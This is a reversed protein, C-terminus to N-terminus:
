RAFGLTYHSGAASRGHRPRGPAARPPWPHAPSSRESRGWCLLFSCCLRPELSCSPTYQRETQWGHGPQAYPLPLRSRFRRRDVHVLWSSKARCVWFPSVRYTRPTHCHIARDHGIRELNSTAKIAQRHHHTRPTSPGLARVAYMQVTQGPLDQAPSRHGENSQSAVRPSHQIGTGRGGGARLRLDNRRAGPEISIRRNSPRKDNHRQVSAPKSRASFSREPGIKESGRYKHGFTRNEFLICFCPTTAAPSKAFNSDRESLRGQGEVRTAKYIPV